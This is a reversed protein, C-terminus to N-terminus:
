SSSGNGRPKAHGTTRSGVPCRATQGRPRNERPCCQLRRNGYGHCGRGFPNVCGMPGIAQDPPADESDSRPRPGTQDLADLRDLIPGLRNEDIMKLRKYDEPTLRGQAHDLELDNLSNLYTQKEIELDIQEQDAFAEPGVPISISTRGWLPYILIAIAGILILGTGLWFVM